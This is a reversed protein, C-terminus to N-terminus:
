ANQTHHRWREHKNYNFEDITWSKKNAKAYKFFENWLNDLKVKTVRTGKIVPEEDHHLKYKIEILKAYADKLTFDSIKTKKGVQLKVPKGRENRYNIYYSIDGNKLENLWVGEYKGGVPKGRENRYNIYYSIDGNKLENLWVGEYKGGVPKLAM